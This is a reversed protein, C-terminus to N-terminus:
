EGRLEVLYTKKLEEVYTDLSEQMKRQRVLNRLEERAEDYTYPRAANRSVVKIIRFGRAEAVVPAIGGAPVDVLPKKIEESMNDIAVEGIAGGANRSAHDDSYEAAAAAFDKGGAVEARVREALQEAAKTDEPTAEARVLIHRLTVKDAEVGELRILHYGFETLVPPSTQGVALKRAAEEFAPNNLDALNITGLSGGFKASPCDSKDKALAAFDEGAKLRSEIAAIRELAKELVVASPKPVILIQALSMTEPRQPLEAAHSRYYERVEADTVDVGGVRAYKLRDVLMYERQPERYMSRLKELTLGEAELQRNFADEGGLATKFDEIKRDLAAEVEADEVVVADRGAQILLLADAVLSKLIEARLTKEEDPTLASRQAQMLYRKVENDVDSQMIARDEVTAIVRDLLTGAAATDPKADQAAADPCPAAVFVAAACLAIAAAIRNGHLM